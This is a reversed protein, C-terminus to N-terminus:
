DAEPTDLETCHIRAAQLLLVSTISVGKEDVLDEDLYITLLMVQPSSNILVAFHNINKELRSSVTRCGPPKKFPYQSTMAAFGSLDHGVLQAAITNSTSFKYRADNVVVSPIGVIPGLLRM